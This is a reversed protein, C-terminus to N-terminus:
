GENNEAFNHGYIPGITLVSRRAEEEEEVETPAPAPAPAAAVPPPPPPEAVVIEVRRNRPEVVGDATPVLLNEEGRGVAVIDTAPVGERELEDAVTQARHQSLQLNYDASGSTDTYGTVTIRPSRSQRYDEAAQRIVERDQATLTTQDLGFTVLYRGGGEVQPPAIQGTQAQAIPATLALLAAGIVLARMGRKSIREPCISQGAQWRRTSM